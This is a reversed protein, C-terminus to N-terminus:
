DKLCRVSFGLEKGEDNRGASATLYHLGRGWANPSSYETSSWWGGGEGLFLFLGSYDLAGGPLGTFGSTNTAFENPASWHSTDAEKMKVGAVREGGLYDILVTWEGDTPIHWGPPCIGQVSPTTSYQMMEDWQYLGGYTGRSLNVPM